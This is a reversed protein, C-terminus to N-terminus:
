RLVALTGETVGLQNVVKLQSVLERGNIRREILDQYIRILKQADDMKEDVLEVRVRRLGRAVFGDLFSAGSQAKAHFVTNRCGVDVKVPHDVGLRDRLRLDHRECPRGCDLHTHGNSLFAAFVCHEMHFLPMHQHITVEFWEPPAAELLREVQSHNLDYSVTLSEFGQEMLLEATLPNAVNLSFDGVKRLPSDKFHALGGLNRILV